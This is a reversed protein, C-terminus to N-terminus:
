GVLSSLLPLSSLILRPFIVTPKSRGAFACQRKGWLGLRRKAAGAAYFWLYALTDRPSLRLADNIHAETEEARGLYMKGVGVIHHAAAYNRDLALAYECEAIGEAARGTYIYVCGLIAHSRVHSPAVSLARELKGEAAVFSSASKPALMQIGAVM